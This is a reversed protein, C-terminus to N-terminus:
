VVDHVHKVRRRVACARVLCLVLLAHPSTDSSSSTAMDCTCEPPTVAGGGDVRTGGDVAACKGETCAGDVCPAGDDVNTHACGDSECTDLTCPNEDDCALPGNACAGETCTGVTCGDDDGDPCTNGTSPACIGDRPAGMAASCALCDDVNGDGCASDCCVGDRCFGQTCHADDTCAAGLSRDLVYVYVDTTERDAVVLVDDSMALSVSTEPSSPWDTVERGTVWGDDTWSLLDLRAGSTPYQSVVVTDDHAALTVRSYPSGEENSNELAVESSLTYTAGVVGYTHLLSSSGDWPGQHAVIHTPTLFVSGFFQTELGDDIVQMPTLTGDEDFTFVSITRPFGTSAVFTNGHLAINNGFHTADSLSEDARIKEVLVWDGNFQRYVYVVGEGCPSEGVLGECPAGVVVADDSAAIAYGFTTQMSDLLRVDVGDDNWVDVHVWGTEGRRVVHVVSDDLKRNYDNPEGVFVHDRGIALAGDFRDFYQLYGPSATVARASFAFEAVLEFDADSREFVSLTVACTTAPIEEACRRGRVVLVNGRVAVARPSSGTPGSEELYRDIPAHLVQLPLATFLSPDGVRLHQCGEVTDCADRTALNEDDCDLPPGECSGATCTTDTTCANGDDCLAGDDLPSFICGTAQDCAAATCPDGDDCILASSACEGDVCTNRTCVDDDDAGCVNGSSAGCVGDVSAGSAVSCAICDTEDGEGCAGDCCVGDRCFGDICGADDACPAGIGHRLAYVHVTTSERDAVVLRDADMALAVSPGSATQWGDVEGIHEFAAGTWSYLDLYASSGDHSSLVATAGLHVASSQDYIPVWAPLWQSRSPTLWWDASSQYTDLARRPYYSGPRDVVLRGRSLFVRFFGNYLDFGASSGDAYKVPLRQRLTLAGDEVGFVFLADNQSGTAGVVVTEDSVAIGGGFAAGAWTNTSPREVREIFTPDGDVFRFVYVAGASCNSAGECPAGIVLTEDNAAVAYGFATNGPGVIAGFEEDHWTSMHTWGASERRVVHVVSDHTTSQWHAPDGIFIFDTAIAISNDFRFYDFSTTWPRAAFEFEGALAFTEGNREFVSATIACHSVDEDDVCRLGRVVLVDDRLAVARHSSVSEHSGWHHDLPATLTELPEVTIVARSTKPPEVLSV